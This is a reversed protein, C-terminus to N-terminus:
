HFTKTLSSSFHRITSIKPEFFSELIPFNQIFVKWYQFSIAQIPFTSFYPALRTLLTNGRHSRFSNTSIPFYQSAVFSLCRPSCPFITITRVSKVGMKFAALFLTDHLFLCYLLECFCLITFRQIYLM